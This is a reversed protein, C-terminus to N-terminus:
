LIARKLFETAKFNPLKEFARIEWANTNKKPNTLYVVSDLTGLMLVEGVRMDRDVYVMSHSLEKDGKPSIFEERSDEWRCDIEVATAYVPKGYDDVDKGGTESSGLPWYVAKQKRMRSIISM